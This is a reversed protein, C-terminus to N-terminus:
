ARAPTKLRLCAEVPDHDGLGFDRVVAYSEVVRHRLFPVYDLTRNPLHSSPVIFGARV